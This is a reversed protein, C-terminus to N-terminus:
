GRFNAPRSKAMRMGTWVMAGPPVPRAAVWAMVGGKPATEYSGSLDIGIQCNLTGNRECGPVCNIVGCAGCLLSVPRTPTQMTGTDVLSVASVIWGIGTVM